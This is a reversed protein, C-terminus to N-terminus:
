NSNEKPENDIFLNNNSDNINNNEREIEIIICDYCNCSIFLKSFLHFIQKIIKMLPSTQSSM